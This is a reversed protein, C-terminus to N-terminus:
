DSEKGKCNEKEEGTKEVVCNLEHDGAGDAM